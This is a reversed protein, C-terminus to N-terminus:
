GDRGGWFAWSQLEHVTYRTRKGHYWLRVHPEYEGYTKLIWRTRRNRVRGRDSVEYSPAEFCRRWEEPM